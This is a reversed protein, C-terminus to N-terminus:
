GFVLNKDSHRVGANDHVNAVETIIAGEPGAFQWHPAEVKTLPTFQGPKLIVEHMVTATGNMHCKPIIAKINETAEGPGYVYSVGHRVLWGELKAPNKDTPLHYHEPLMQNPLLYIDLMMYRDKENNVFIVAGLGMKAYQGAGYDSVWLNERADPFVPYGHYEMLAILADKAAEPKFKGEADYFYANDFNINPKRATAKEAPSCGAVSLGAAASATQLVARRSIMKKVDM